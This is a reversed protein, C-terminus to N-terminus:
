SVVPRLETQQSFPWFNPLFLLSLLQAETKFTIFSMFKRSAETTFIGDATYFICSVYTQDRPLSSGRSSPIAGWERLRAQSIGYLFSTPQLGQPGLCAPMVLHIHLMCLLCPRNPLSSLHESDFCAGEPQQRTSFPTHAHPLLSSCRDVSTNITAFFTGVPCQPSPTKSM